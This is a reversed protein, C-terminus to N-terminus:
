VFLCNLIFFSDDRVLYWWHHLSSLSGTGGVCLWFNDVGLFGGGSRFSSSGSLFRGWPRIGLKGRACSSTSSSLALSSSTPSPPRPHTLRPRPALWPALCLGWRGLAHLSMPPYTYPSYRLLVMILSQDFLVFVFDLLPGLSTRSLVLRLSGALRLPSPCTL